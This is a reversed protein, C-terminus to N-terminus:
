ESVAKAKRVKFKKLSRPVFGQQLATGYIKPTTGSRGRSAYYNAYANGSAFGTSAIGLHMAITGIASLVNKKM